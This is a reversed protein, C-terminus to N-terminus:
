SVSNFSQGKTHLGVLSGHHGSSQGGGGVMRVVGEEGCIGVGCGLGAMTPVRWCGLGVGVVRLGMCTYLDAREESFM